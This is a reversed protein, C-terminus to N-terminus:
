IITKRANSEIVNRIPTLEHVNSCGKGTCKLKNDSPFDVFGPKLVKPEEFFVQIRIVAGCNQCKLDTEMNKADSPIQPLKPGAIQAKHEQRGKYIQSNPTEYIKYFPGRDFTMELLIKYRRLAEALEERKSYDTILLDMGRLDDIKISRGHTLWDSHKALKEAIATAREIREQETIEEGTRKRTKWNRFKYKVLWDKVLRKAFSQANKAHEIDGPSISQLIPIYAQNLKGTKEVEEKIRDLGMLFAEASYQRGNALLQGDIPGLSSSPEMLIDDGAMAILTGASKASGPVIINLEDFRSRLLKVLDEAVEGLGGPTDIILDLRSGELVSIQDNIPTLDNHDILIPQKHKNLDAAYVLLARSDRLSAIKHLQAKREKIIQPMELHRELYETYLGAKDPKLGSAFLDRRSRRKKTKSM